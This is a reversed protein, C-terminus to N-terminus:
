LKVMKYKAWLDPRRDKTIQEAKETRWKAIEKHNGSLLVSPVNEGRWVAPKTYQPYELLDLSFSEQKVSEINNMVGPILRVCADIIVMAPIEGGFLVFDGISIEEMGHNIKWYDIVRQDIGEYRGCLIIIGNENDEMIERAIKQSFVKGIPTMFLIRPRRPKYLSLAYELAKNVIDAKMIMGAGGGYPTDDVTKYKDAAFERIDITKLEWLKSLSKGSLGFALAGPFIEPFITVVTIFM